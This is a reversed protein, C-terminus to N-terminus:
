SCRYVLRPGCRPRPCRRCCDPLDWAEIWARLSRLRLKAWLRYLASLMTLLRYAMPDTVSPVDQKSLTVVRGFLTASPWQGTAEILNLLNTLWRIGQHSLGKFDTPAFGDPGGATPQLVDM